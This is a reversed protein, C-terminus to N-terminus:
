NSIGRRRVARIAFFVILLLFSSLLFVTVIRSIGASKHHSATPARSPDLTSSLPSSLSGDSGWGGMDSDIDIPRDELSVLDSILSQPSHFYRIDVIQDNIIDGDQLGLNSVDFRSDPIPRNVANRVFSIEKAIQPVYEGNVALTTSHNMRSIVFVGSEKEYEWSTKSAPGTGDTRGGAFDLVMGSSEDFTYVAEDVGRLVRVAVRGDKPGTVRITSLIRSNEMESIGRLYRGMHLGYPSLLKRPFFSKESQLNHANGRVDVVLIRAGSSDSLRYVKGDHRLEGHIFDGGDTKVGDSWVSMDSSSLISHSFSVVGRREVKDGSSEPTYEFDVIAEGEWTELLDFNSEWLDALRRVAIKSDEVSLTGGWAAPQCCFVALFCTALLATNKM